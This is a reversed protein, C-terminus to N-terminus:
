GGFLKLLAAGDKSDAVGGLAGIFKAMPAHIRSAESTAYANRIGAAASGIGAAATGSGGMGIEYKALNTKLADSAQANAMAAYPAPTFSTDYVNGAKSSFMDYLDRMDGQRGTNIGEAIQLGEVEPSGIQAQARVRDVAIRRLADGVASSGTRTQLTRAAREADDFGANVATTRDLRLQSGLANPDVLGIGRKANMVDDLAADAAGSARGRQREVDILGQRRMAQDAVLRTLEEKDSAGQLAKQEPGLVSEWAGTAPNYKTTGGYPDVINDGRAMLQQSLSQIYKSIDIQQDALQKQLALEEKARKNKKKDSLLGAGAGLISLGAGLLSM